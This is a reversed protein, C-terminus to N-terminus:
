CLSCKNFYIDILVFLINCILTKSWQSTFIPAPYKLIHKNERNSLIVLFRFRFYQMYKYVNNKNFMLKQSWFIIFLCSLKLPPINIQESIRCWFKQPVERTDWITFCRGAICSVQTWDRPWSSGRSFSIPVWELVRAQFIGHSWLPDSVVSRSWKNQKLSCYNRLNFCVRKPM